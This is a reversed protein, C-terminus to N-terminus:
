TLFNMQYNELISPSIRYLSNIKIKWKEEWASFDQTGRNILVLLNSIKGGLDRIAKIAFEKSHGSSILDDVLLISKSKISPGEILKKMGHNKSTKRLLYMPLNTKLSLGTAFPIGALPIGIVGEVDLNSEIYNHMENLFKSFIKPFSPLFRLDIYFKSKDGSALTFDGFKLAQIEYLQDLMIKTRIDIM